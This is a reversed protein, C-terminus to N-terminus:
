SPPSAVTSVAAVSNPLAVRDDLGAVSAAADRTATQWYRALTAYDRAREDSCAGSVASGAGGDATHSFPEYHNPPREAALESRTEEAELQEQEVYQEAHLEEALEDEAAIIERVDPDNVEVFGVLIYRTGSVVPAGGHLMQGCHFLVDGLCEPTLVLGISDFRTGGGEFADSLRVNFSFTYGDRHLPLEPQGGAVASYKVIFVERATLRRAPLGFLAALTPLLVTHLRTSLWDALASITSIEIDCTSHEEHRAQWRSEDIM